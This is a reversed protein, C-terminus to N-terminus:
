GKEESVVLSKKENTDNEEDARKRSAELKDANWPAREAILPDLSDLADHTAHGNKAFGAAVLLRRSAYTAM